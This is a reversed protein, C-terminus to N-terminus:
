GLEPRLRVIERALTPIDRTLLCRLAHDAAIGTQPLDELYEEALKWRILFHQLWNQDIDERGNEAGSPSHVQASDSM